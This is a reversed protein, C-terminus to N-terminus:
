KINKNQSLALVFCVVYLGEKDVLLMDCPVAQRGRGDQDHM